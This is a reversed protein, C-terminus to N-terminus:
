YGNIQRPRPNPTSGILRSFPVQDRGSFGGRQEDNFSNKGTRPDSFPKSFAQALEMASTAKGYRPQGTGDPCEPKRWTEPSPHRKEQVMPRAKRENERARNNNDNNRWNRRQTESRDVNGISRSDKRDVKGSVNAQRSPIVKEPVRETKPVNSKVRELRDLEHHDTEDMGREKLVLERPRAGGFVANREREPIVDPQEALQSRPKLNLKPREAQQNGSEDASSSPKLNNMNRHTMNGVSAGSEQKVDNLPREVNELHKTSPLLKLKPRELSESPIYTDDSRNLYLRNNRGAVVNADKVELDAPPSGKEYQASVKRGDMIGDKIALGKELHRALMVESSERERAVYDNTKHLGSELDPHKLNEIQGPAVLKSHWKGSSLHEIATVPVLKSVAPQTTAWPSQGPESIPSTVEKRSAWANPYAGSVSNESNAGIMQNSIGSHAADIKKALWPGSSGGQRNALRGALVPDSKVETHTNPARFVDDSIMRRPVSPGDLLMREDESFNRGINATLPLFPSKDDFNRISHSSSPRTRQDPRGMSTGLSVRDSGPRDATSRPIVGPASPLPLDSPISGGHFDKLTMTNGSSKKKSM